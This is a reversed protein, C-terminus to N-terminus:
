SPWRGLRGAVREDTHEYRDAALRLGDGTTRMRGAIGALVADAAHVVRDTAMTAAWDPNAARDAVATHYAATLDGSLQAALAWLQAACRRLTAPAVEVVTM